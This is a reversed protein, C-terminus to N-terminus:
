PWRSRPAAANWCCGAALFLVVGACGLLGPSCSPPWARRGAGPRRRLDRARRDRGDSFGLNSGSQELVPWRCPRRPPAARARQRTDARGGALLRSPDIDPAVTMTTVSLRESVLQALLRCRATPWSVSADPVHGRTARLRPVARADPRAALLGRGPEGARVARERRAPVAAARAERACSSFRRGNRLQLYYRPSQHQARDGVTVGARQSARSTASTPRPPRGTRRGRRRPASRRAARSSGCRATGPPDANLVFHRGPGPRPYPGPAVVGRHPRGTGRAAGVAAPEGRPGTTAAVLAEYAAGPRERRRGRVPLPARRRGPSRATGAARGRRRRRAALPHQRRGGRAAGRGRLFATGRRGARAARAGRNRGSRAPSSAASCAPATADQGREDPPPPPVRRGCCSAPGCGPGRPPGGRRRGAWCPARSSSPRRSPSRRCRRVAAGSASAGHPRRTFAPVLLPAVALGICCARSSWRRGALRRGRELSSCAACGARSQRRQGAPWSTSSGAAGRERCVVDGPARGRPGGGLAALPRWLRAGPAPWEAFPNPSAAREAVTRVCWPRGARGARPVAAAVARGPADSGTRHGSLDHPGPGAPVADARTSTRRTHALDSRPRGPAVAPSPVIGDDYLGGRRARRPSGDPPSASTDEAEGRPRPRRRRARPPGSASGTPWTADLV